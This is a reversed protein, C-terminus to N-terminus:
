LYVAKYRPRAFRRYIIESRKLSSGAKYQISLFKRFNTYPKKGVGDEAAVVDFGNAKLRTSLLRVMDPDDDVVLIKKNDGKNAM